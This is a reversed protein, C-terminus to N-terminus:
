SDHEMADDVGRRQLLGARNTKWNREREAQERELQDLAARKAALDRQLVDLRFTAETEAMQLELRRREVEDRIHQREMEDALEREYRLTGMLVEGGALYVDALTVGEDSLVLERVQNSHGTGRSKVITLARNREGGRVVYSLHIWTDAITSVQITTAEAEANASELLSTCVVTIGEAKALRLLWLAMRQAVFQEGAKVFASLPDIVLCRPKLRKLLERVAILHKPSNGSVSDGSYLHLLGADMYPQLDINVSRLNRVIEQGGEDFCAYLTREGRRCAADAFAGCLTSKATGPAGTILVSNGRYYGGNLMTDLREVGTSVREDLALPERAIPSIGVMEIGSRGIDMPFENPTFDSGRYKLVRVERMAVQEFIRQQLQVVCDSTFQLFEYPLADDRTLRSTIIGTLNSAHLWDRLRYVEQREAMPDNLLSLLVDLSDFVIRRAGIDEAKAKLTALMGILDFEGARMTDPSLRADLFFLKDQELRVLDWGFTAANEVIQQSQEEFAVFIGPEGWRRAGNVLTQLAFVTKGSGAAGLILTLRRQPLGGLTIEDFGDIGTPLKEIGNSPPPPTPSSM